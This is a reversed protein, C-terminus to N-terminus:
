ITRIHVHDGDATDVDVRLGSMHVSALLAMRLPRAWSHRFVGLVFWVPWALLWLPWLLLLPLPIWIRRGGRVAVLLFMPLM